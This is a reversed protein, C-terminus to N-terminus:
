ARLYYELILADFSRSVTDDATRGHVQRDAESGTQGDAACERGDALDREVTERWDAPVVRRTLQALRSM